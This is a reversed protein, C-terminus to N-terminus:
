KMNDGAFYKEIEKVDISSFMIRYPKEIGKMYLVGIKKEGSEIMNPYWNYKTDEESMLLSKRSWSGNLYRILRLEGTILRPDRGRYKIKGYLLYLKAPQSSRDIALICTYTEIPHGGADKVILEGPRDFSPEWNNEGYPFSLKRYRLHNNNDIYVLHIKGQQSDSTPEFVMSMRKDDGAVNSSLGILSDNESWQRGNYLNGFVKGKKTGKAVVYANGGGLGLIQPAMSQVDTNKIGKMRPIWSKIDKPRVSRSVIVEHLTEDRTVRRSAVWIYGDADMSVSSYIIREDPDVSKFVRYREGWKIGDGSIWGERVYLMNVRKDPAPDDDLSTFYYVKNNDFIVDAGSSFPVGRDLVSDESSWAKGDVSSRYLADQGNSYFVHWRGQVFFVKRQFQRTTSHDTTTSDIESILVIKNEVAALHLCGAISILLLILFIIKVLEFYKVKAM